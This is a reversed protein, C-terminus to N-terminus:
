YLKKGDWDIHDKISMKDVVINCLVTNQTTKSKITTFAEESFGPEGNVVQYWKSITKPHPLVNKFVKRVFNYAKSSYFQLM